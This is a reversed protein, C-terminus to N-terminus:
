NGGASKENAAKEKAAEEALRKQVEVRQQMLADRRDQPVEDETAQRSAQLARVYAVIAWRDRVKIQAAYGPMKRIGNSITSFLKGQAYKDAYLSPDHLSSPPVWNTALIKQARQNVLGNGGGNAGHCVSCYINFQEMGRYVLDQDVEIPIEELWPTSDEAADTQGTQSNQDAVPDAGPVDVGGIAAPKQLEQDQAPSQPRGTSQNRRNEPVGPGDTKDSQAGGPNGNDLKEAVADDREEEGSVDDFLAVLRDARGPDMSSLKSMDVGTLVDMDMQGRYVTGAVDPRMTRADAFLTTNQQADKSPTFDMDFFVHFRPLDSRTLRMKLVVLLPISSLGIVLAWIMFIFKPVEKPSEDEVVPAIYESGTETMIGEVAARDFKDDKSDVYLFFKDDTARDFRPDTFIPNSYMPLRNLVWMGFFAGFSAFLITLEFAVPMFAPLSIYPKGSIIYKYDIGNMWIQMALATLLGTVGGALAIWPLATPKIGLAPDIGHVPFPTFADTKTYGADRIRRCAALLTDVNDYEGMVGRVASASLQLDTDPSQQEQGSPQANQDDM